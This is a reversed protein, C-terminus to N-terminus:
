NSEHPVAEPEIREPQMQQTINQEVHQATSQEVHQTTSQEVHQTTSQEFRQTNTSGAEQTDAYRGPTEPVFISTVINGGHFEPETLVNVEAATQRTSRTQAEDTPPVYVPEDWSTSTKEQGAWKKEPAFYPADAWKPNITPPAKTWGEHVTAGAAAANTATTTRDAGPHAAEARSIGKESGERRKQARSAMTNGLASSATGTILGVAAKGARSPAEPADALQAAVATGTALKTVSRFPKSLQWLLFTVIASIITSVFLNDSNVYLIATIATHVSAIVGFVVVNYLSAAVIKIAAVAAGRTQEPIALLAFIPGLLPIFRIVLMGLFMLAEAPIRILAVTTMMFAAMFGAGARNYSQGKITQYQNETADDNKVADVAENYDDRKEDPEYGDEVEQWTATSAVFMADTKETWELEGTQGLNWLPQLMADRLIAGTAEETTATTLHEGDVAGSDDVPIGSYELAQADAASVIASAIGDTSQAISLPYMGVVSVFGLALATALLTMLATRVQKTIAGVLIGIAAFVIVPFAWDNFLVEQTITSLQVIKEDLPALTTTPDATWKHMATMVSGEFAAFGMLANGGWTDIVAVLDDTVALPDRIDCNNWRLGAWGYQGYYNGDSPEATASDINGSVGTGAYAPIGEPKCAALAPASPAFVAFTAVLIAVAAFGKLARRWPSEQRDVVVAASM